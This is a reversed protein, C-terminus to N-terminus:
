GLEKIAKLVSAAFMDVEEVSADVNPTVRLGDFEDHKIAITVIRRKEWLWERLKYPDLGDVHLLGIGSARETEQPPLLRARPSADAIQSAYRSRLYRLRAIKRDAGISRHFALAGAIANHIAAPHTGIEEFKRIDNALSEPAAMLPWIRPIMEKRVYLFGTGVPALLWKHLSTAYFDCGLDDRRFPFHAFAHAGDVYTLIGRERAAAVVERVPLINGTLNVVHTVEVVKTRPTMAERFRAVVAEPSPGPGGLSITKVVVGDRRARQAWMNTMRPYNQNSVIVEDGRKLDIGNILIGLSESANRTIAMEEADCGFERALERRVSEIRPELVDWMQHAPAVNSFRLDRFMAELVGLPAPAVGGHNFNILTRDADFARRIEAWYDEAAAMDDGQRAAAIEAARLLRGPAEAAFCAAGVGALFGRRHGELM